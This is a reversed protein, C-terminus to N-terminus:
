QHDDTKGDPSRYIKLFYTHGNHVFYAPYRNNDAIRLANFQDAISRHVDLRDDKRTRRRYTSEGGTQPTRSISPYKKLIREMLRLTTEAQLRRIDVFLEHGQLRIVDRELIDGADLDATVHILCVPIEKKGELIQWQVPSFGKGKPLDSEHIVLPLRNAELFDARLMKTYGLVFVIDRDRIEGPDDHLSFTYKSAMSDFLDVKSIHGSLWDNEPDLLIAVTYRGRTDKEKSLDKIPHQATQLTM